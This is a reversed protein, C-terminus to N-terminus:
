PECVELAHMYQTWLNTSKKPQGEKFYYLEETSVGGRSGVVWSVGMVGGAVCVLSMDCLFFSYVQSPSPLTLGRSAGLSSDRRLGQLFSDNVEILWSLTM